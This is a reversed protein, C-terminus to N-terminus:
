SSGRRRARDRRRRARHLALEFGAQAVASRQHRGIVQADFVPEPDHGILLRVGSEAAQHGSLRDEDGVAVVAVLGGELIAVLMARAACDDPWSSGDFKQRIISTPM